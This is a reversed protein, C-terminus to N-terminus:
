SGSGNAGGDTEDEGDETALDSEAEFRRPTMPKEPQKALREAIVRKVWDLDRLHIDAQPYPMEISAARFGKLIAARVDTRVAYSQSVNALYIFLTFSLAHEGFDEFYVFPAPSSLIGPHAKAAALMIDRVQEPDSDFHVNAKIRYRGTNNHLTWNKVKQTILMSNPVIVNSRDFTEIETSRVSIRRVLGEDDGVIVWDGVKVPREALLILGSVFNNVISQLGFGIGVSLAGAVIAINSIDLGAYSVAVLAALAVGLYFTGTRISHRASDEVGAPELVQHDLWGQFVRAGIYGAVFLLAAGLVTLISIRAPGLQFGFLAARFFERIDQWDFGWQLLLFPIAAVLIGSQLLLTLPLAIQERRRPERMLREGAWRGAPTSDDSLSQGFASAWVIFLYAITLITSIVILQGAVFRALAVYGLAAAALITVAVLWLPLRVYFRGIKGSGAKEGEAPTRILLISIILAAYAVSSISSQALSLSFPMDAAEGLAGAIHDGGFVLALAMIRRYLKWAAKDALPLLRWISRNVALVTKSVAHVAVVVMIAFLTTEVLRELRGPLLAGHRMALIVVSAGALSPLARLAIVWGASSVRRWQSPAEAQQWHRYRLIGRWALLSLLASLVLAGLLAALFRQRGPADRWEAALVDLRGVGTPFEEAVQRWLDPSLPSPARQLVRDQFDRRRVDRIQEALNEARLFAAEAANVASTLQALNDALASRQQAIAASEPAQAPTPSAGIREAQARAVALRPRLKRIHSEIAAELAAIEQRADALTRDSVNPEALLLEIRDLATDWDSLPQLYDPAISSHPAPAPAPAQAAPATDASPLPAGTQGRATPAIAALMAMSVAALVAVLAAILGASGTLRRLRRSAVRVGPM